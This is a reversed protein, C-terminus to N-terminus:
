LAAEGALLNILRKLSQPAPMENGGLQVLSLGEPTLADAKPDRLKVTQSEAAHSTQTTGSCKREALSVGV